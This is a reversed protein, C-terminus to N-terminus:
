TPLRCTTTVMSIEAVTTVAIKSTLKTATIRRMTVEAVVRVDRDERGEDSGDDTKTGVEEGLGAEQVGEVHM